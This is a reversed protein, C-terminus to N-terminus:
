GGKILSKSIWEWEFQGSHISSSEGGESQIRNGKIIDPPFETFLILYPM